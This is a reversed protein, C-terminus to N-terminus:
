WPSRLREGCRGCAAHWRAMGELEPVGGNPTYTCRAMATRVAQLVRARFRPPVISREQSHTSLRGAPRGPEHEQRDCGRERRDRELRGGPQERSAPAHLSRSPRCHQWQPFAAAVGRFRHVGRGRFGLRLASFRQLPPAVAQERKLRVGLSSCRSVFLWFRVSRPCCFRVEAREFAELGDDFPVALAFSAGGPSVRQTAVAVTSREVLTRREHNRRGGHALADLGPASFAAARPGLQARRAISAGVAAAVSFRLRVSAPASSPKGRRAADACCTPGWNPGAVALLAAGLFV